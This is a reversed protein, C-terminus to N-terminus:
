QECGFTVQVTLVHCAVVPPHKQNLGKIQSNVFVWQSQFVSSASLFHESISMEAKKMGFAHRTWLVRVESWCGGGRSYVRISKAQTEHISCSAFSHIYRPTLPNSRTKIDEAAGHTRAGTYFVSLM